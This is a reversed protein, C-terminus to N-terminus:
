WCTALFRFFPGFNGVRKPSSGPFLIFSLPCLFSPLPFLASSLPCLFSPLPFLASSLPCLFSPLAPLRDSRAALGATRSKRKTKIKQGKGETRERQISRDEWGDQASDLLLACENSGGLSASRWGALRERKQLSSKRRSSPRDSELFDDRAQERAHKEKPSFAGEAM